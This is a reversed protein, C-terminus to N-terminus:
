ARTTGAAGGIWVGSGRGLRRCRSWRRRILSAPGLLLGRGTVVLAIAIRAGPPTLLGLRLLRVVSAGPIRGLWAPVRLPGALLTIRLLAIGVRRLLLAVTLLAVGLRTIRLLRPIRLLRAAVRLLWRLVLLRAIGLGPSM